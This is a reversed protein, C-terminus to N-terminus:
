EHQLSYPMSLLNPPSIIVMSDDYIIFCIGGGGGMIVNAVSDSLKKMLRHQFFSPSFFLIKKYSAIKRFLCSFDCVLMGSSLEQVSSM